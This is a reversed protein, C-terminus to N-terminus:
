RRSPNNAFLFSNLFADDGLEIDVLKSRRAGDQIYAFLGAVQDDVETSYSRQSGINDFLFIDNFVLQTAPSVAIFSGDVKNISMWTYACRALSIFVESGRYKPDVALGTVEVLSKINARMWKFELPFISESPLGLPSDHVVSITGIIQNDRTVDRAVFTALSGSAEYTRIRLGTENARIYQEEVYTNHVLRLSERLEDRNFVPTIQYKSDNNNFKALRSRWKRLRQHNHVYYIIPSTIDTMASKLKREEIWVANSQLNGLM